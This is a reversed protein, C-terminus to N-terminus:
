VLERHRNREQRRVGMASVWGAVVTRLAAPLLASGLEREEVLGGTRMGGCGLEGPAGVRM